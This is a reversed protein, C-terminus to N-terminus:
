HSAFYTPAIEELSAPTINFVAPFGQDCVSDVKLSRYNDLSFPKGPFFELIAAQLYSLTDSLGVIYIRKGILRATYDLIQRLSYVRPGCLDYRQGFTRHNDLSEVFAQAVDEVYVPQFRADSCALPFVGPALRLLGAFRNLFGDGAGFIVSPRFSTVHFDAGGARHVLDEGMAKTRLYYSPAQPSARLASMHLLRKIGTQRCAQAIKEPLEVHVRTFGRGDRGKENLIGILNIVVDKNTFQNQLFDADHVDGEVLNVTPLVLLDRHRERRRTLVAVDHGAQALRMVLRRGVFGTGGLLCIKHRAM